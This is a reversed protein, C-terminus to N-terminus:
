AALLFFGGILLGDVYAMPSHWWTGWRRITEGMPLVVGAVLALGKSFSWLL